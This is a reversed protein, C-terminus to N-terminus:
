LFNSFLFYVFVYFLSLSLVVDEKDSGDLVSGIWWAMWEGIGASGLCAM